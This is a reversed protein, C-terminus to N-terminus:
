CTPLHTLENCRSVKLQQALLSVPHLTETSLGAETLGARLHMACGINSTLLYHTPQKIIPTLAESRLNNATEEHTLMYTGAAGCCHQNADVTHITLGNINSLMNPIDTSREGHPTNKLTCPTHLWASAQLPNFALTSLHPTIFANIDVVSDALENNYEAITSGCGSAVTIIADYNTQTFVESNKTALSTSKEKEGAHLNIAGCCVQNTPVSVDYGCHQLIFIAANLTSSDVVESACGTFLAVHGRNHEAFSPYHKNLRNTKVHTPLLADLTPAFGLKSLRSKQYFRTLTNLVGRHNGTLNNVALKEFSNLSSNATEARFDNVLRSYPVHAPCMTECARCTLCNDIHKSLSDSLILAGESWSQILALRM